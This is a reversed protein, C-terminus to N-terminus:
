DNEFPLYTKDPTCCECGDVSESMILLESALNFLKVRKSGVSRKSSIGNSLLLTYMCPVALMLLLRHDM